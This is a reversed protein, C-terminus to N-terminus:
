STDRNVLRLTTGYVGGTRYSAIPTDGLQPTQAPQFVISNGSLAYDVSAKLGVGNRYLALSAVPNPSQSWTFSTNSGDITRANLRYSALLTDNPQPGAAALFTIANSSITYDSGQKM